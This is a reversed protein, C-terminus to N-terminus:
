IRDLFAKRRAKSKPFLRFAIRNCLRDFEFPNLDSILRDDTSYDPIVDSLSFNDCNRFPADLSACYQVCSSKHLYGGCNYYRISRRIGSYISHSNRYNYFPLDAYIQAMIEACSSEIYRHTDYIWAFTINKGVIRALLIENDNFFKVIAEKNKDNIAQAQEETVKFLWWRPDPEKDEDENNSEYPIRWEWMRANQIEKIEEDSFEFENM